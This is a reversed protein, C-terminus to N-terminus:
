EGVSYEYEEVDWGVYWGQDCHVWIKDKDVSINKEGYEKTLFALAQQFTPYM